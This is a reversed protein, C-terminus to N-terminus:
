LNSTSHTNQKISKRMASEFEAAVARWSYKEEVLRRAERGVKNRRECDGLLNLVAESFNRPSDELLINAGDTVPLGEAGVTTSVIAKGMAMAEFIKLRTGSGVRLPVIYVSGRAVYPRIDEVTGTVEIAADKQALAKIRASPKRGVITLKVGPRKQRILPLIEDVFFLLGEENPLWDMSGTFVLHNEEVQDLPSPQFFEVDVGTPIVDVKAAPLYTCFVDRDAESVAFVRDARQLNTKEFRDMARYERWSVVRWVPNGALEFHRKWIIAEVNHTFIVKPINLEWPIIAAPLLFDCMLIDYTESAVLKGLEKRVEPRCYKWVSYPWSSFQARAFNVYDGLSQAPPINLPVAVSRHFMRSLSAHEDNDHQQYFTFFSVSHKSALEKLINYSRIKGGVDPPVLGGAKVWLIRV